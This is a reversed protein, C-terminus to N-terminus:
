NASCEVFGLAANGGTTLGWWAERVIMGHKEITFEQPGTSLAVNHGLGSLVSQKNGVTIGGANLTSFTISRRKPNPGCIWTAVAGITVGDIVSSQNAGHAM